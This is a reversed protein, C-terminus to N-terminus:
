KVRRFIVVPQSVDDASLGYADALKEANSNNWQHVAHKVPTHAYRGYSYASLACFSGTFILCVILKLM